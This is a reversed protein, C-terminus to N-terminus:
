SASGALAAVDQEIQPYLTHQDDSLRGQSPPQVRRRGEEVPEVGWVQPASPIASASDTAIEVSRAASSRPLVGEAM